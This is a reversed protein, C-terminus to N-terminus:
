FALGTSCGISTTLTPTQTDITREATNASVAFDEMETNHDTEPTIDEALPTEEWDSDHSDTHVTPTNDDVPESCPM